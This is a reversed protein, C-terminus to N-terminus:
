LYRTLGRGSHVM